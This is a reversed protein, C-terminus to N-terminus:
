LDLSTVMQVLCDDLAGDLLGDPIGLHAPWGGAM